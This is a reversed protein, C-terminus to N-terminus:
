GGLEVAPSVSRRSHSTDNQAGIDSYPPVSSYKIASRGSLEGIEYNNKNANAALDRALRTRLESIEHDQHMM